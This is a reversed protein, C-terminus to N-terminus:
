VIFGNYGSYGAEWLTRLTDTRLKGACRQGCAPDLLDEVFSPGSKPIAHSPVAPIM